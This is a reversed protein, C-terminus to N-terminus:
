TAARPAVLCDMRSPMLLSYAGHLTMAPVPVDGFRVHPHKSDSCTRERTITGPLFKRSLDYLMRSSASSERAGVLIVALRGTARFRRPARHEAVQNKAQQAAARSSVSVRQHLLVPLLGADLDADAVDIALQLAQSGAPQHPRGGVWWARIRPPHGVFDGRGARRREDLPQRRRGRPLDGFAAARERETGEEEPLLIRRDASSEDGPPM